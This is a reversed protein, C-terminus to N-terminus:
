AFWYNAGATIQASPATVTNWAGAVPANLTGQTLLTGPKGAADNYLGAVLKSATSGSDVYVSISAISGSASATAKFAEAQGATNSDSQPQIQQSGIVVTQAPSSLPLAALAVLFVLAARHHARRLARPVSDLLQSSLDLVIAFFGSQVEAHGRVNKRGSKDQQACPMRM